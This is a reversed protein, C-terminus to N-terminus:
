RFLADGQQDIVMKAKNVSAEAAEENSAFTDARILMHTKVEGNIEKELRAGLRYRGGENIPDAHITVDEYIEPEPESASGGGGFLRSFLSM